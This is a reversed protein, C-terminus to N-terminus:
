DMVLATQPWDEPVTIEGAVLKTALMEIREVTDANTRWLAESLDALIGPKPGTWPAAMECDLPDFFSGEGVGGWLPSPSAPSAAEGLPMVADVVLGSTSAL